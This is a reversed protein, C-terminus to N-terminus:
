FLNRYLGILGIMLGLLSMMGVIISSIRYQWLYRVVHREEDM